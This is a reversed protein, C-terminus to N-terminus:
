TPRRAGAIRWTVRAVMDAATPRGDPGLAPTMRARRVLANCSANDLSAHGSSVLTRCEIARGDAGIRVRVLVTGQHRARLAGPPYDDWRFASVLSGQPPAQLAAQADPDMGWGRMVTRECERIGAVAQSPASFAVEVMLRGDREARISQSRALTDLISDPLEYVVVSRGEATREVLVECPIPEGSPAFRLRIRDPDDVARRPWAPSILRVEWRMSGPTTRLVFLPMPPHDSRRILSCYQGDWDVNWGGAPITERQARLPSALTLLLLLLPFAHRRANM